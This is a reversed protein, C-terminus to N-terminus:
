HLQTISVWTATDITTRGQLVDAPINNSNRPWNWIKIYDNTREMAFFGGGAANLGPGYSDQTPAQM